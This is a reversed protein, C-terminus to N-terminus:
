PAKGAPTHLSAMVPPLANALAACVMQQYDSTGLQAPDGTTPAIEVAIAPPEANNLPRLAALLGRVPFGTKQIFAVLQQQVARSRALSRNQATDWNAFLGRDEGSDPLMATFVRIGKGTTSAHVAIYLAPNASNVVSARNDLSVTSDGDRVLRASIGRLNLEQRLRRAVALTVDKELVTATLLAGPDTGGHAPDIMIIAPPPAPVPTPAPASNAPAGQGSASVAVVLFLLIRLGSRRFQTAGSIWRM